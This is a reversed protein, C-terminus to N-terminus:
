DSPIPKPGRRFGHVYDISYTLKDDQADLMGTLAAMIEVDLNLTLPYHWHTNIKRRILVGDVYFNLYKPDWELGYVHYDDALDFPATWLGLSAHDPKGSPMDFVHLNTSYLRERDPAGPWVEYVDIETWHDPDKAYFWFTSAARSKMPKSRIEFYGYRVRERSQVAGTTWGHYGHREQEASLNEKRLDLHLKGDAVRVNNASFAGPPRGAWGPNIPYWKALDLGTGDFEDTFAQDVIWGGTNDQDSLPLADTRRQPTEGLDGERLWEDDEAVAAKSILGGLATVGALLSRRGIGLQSKQGPPDSQHMTATGAQSTRSDRWDDATNAPTDSTPQRRASAKVQAM